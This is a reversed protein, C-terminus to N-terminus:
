LASRGSRWLIVPQLPDYQSRRRDIWGRESKFTASRGYPSAWVDKGAGAAVNPSPRGRRYYFNLPGM